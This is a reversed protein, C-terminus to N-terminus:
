HTIKIVLEIEKSRIPRNLNEIEQWTLKQLKNIEPYKDVGNSYELKNTYLQEHYEKM